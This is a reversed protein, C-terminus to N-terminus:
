GNIYVIKGGVVTMVVKTALIDENPITMIDQDFITIDALKGIELTGLKDEKFIAYAPWKTFIALAQERSLAQQLNWGENSYGDLDKRTVAAYFEIIPDGVEVPADSGGVVVVGDDIFSKWTYANSLREFGLRDEAFHLDGIAHSPQMSAIINLEKFRKRDAEIVNQAHEIRWRLDKKPFDKYAKEYANLVMQNGRDGIAHIQIQCNRMAIKRLYSDIDSDLLVLGRSDKDEYSELLAAGRSGLAGDAYIKISRLLQNKKQSENVWSPFTIVFERNLDLQENLANSPRSAEHSTTCSACLNFVLFIMLMTRLFSM